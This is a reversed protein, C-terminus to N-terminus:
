YYLGSNFSAPDDGPPLGIDQPDRALCRSNRLTGRGNKSLLWTRLKEEKSFATM